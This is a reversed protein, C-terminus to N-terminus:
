FLFTVGGLFTFFNSDALTGDGNATTGNQYGPNYYAPNAYYGNLDHNESSIFVNSYKVFAGVAINRSLRVDTGAEAYGFFSSVSYNENSYPSVGYGPYNNNTHNLYGLNYGVGGGLYLRFKSLAPTVNFRLGGDFTNQNYELQSVNGYGYGPYAGYGYYPNYGNVVNVAYKGFTYNFVASIMSDVEVELNAGLAYRSTFTFGAVDSLNMFGILPSLRVKNSREAILAAEGVTIGDVNESNKDSVKPAKDISLYDEEKAPTSAAAQTNVVTDQVVTTNQASSGDDVSIKIRDLSKILASEFQNRVDSIKNDIGQDLSSGIGKRPASNAQVVTTNSNVNSTASVPAIDSPEEEQHVILKRKPAKKKVIVVDASSDSSEDEERLTVKKAATNQSGEPTIADEQVEESVMEAHATHAAFGAFALVLSTAFLARTWNPNKM